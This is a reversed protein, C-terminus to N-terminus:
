VARAAAVRERSMARFALLYHAAAWINILLVITLAPRLSHPGGIRDSFSGVLFPGLGGGFLYASFQLGALLLGRMRSPVAALAISYSPGLYAGMTFAAFMLITVAVTTDAALTFAVGLIASAFSTCAPVLALRPFADRAVVDALRGFAAGGIAQAIAAAAAIMGAEKLGFGHVRILFSSLWFWLAVMAASTVTIAAAIHLIVPSSLVLRLVARIPPPEGADGASSWGETKQRPPERVTAILVIALILGPLGAVLFAARWGYGTAAIGGLVFSLCVGLAGALYFSGIASSREKSSFLDSILSVSAPQGGSEALGVGIRVLLLASYSSALAGLLTFGSWVAVLTALLNRRNVRDILRGVPLCSLSYATTYALGTLIGLQTDTLHFQRKLPEAVVATVQRDLSQCAYIGAFIALGYWRGKSSRAQMHPEEM